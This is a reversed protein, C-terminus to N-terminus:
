KVGSLPNRSIMGGMKDNNESCRAGVIILLKKTKVENCGVVAALTSLKRWQYTKDEFMEKLKHNFLLDLANSTKVVQKHCIM